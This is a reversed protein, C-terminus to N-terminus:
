CVWFERVVAEQLRGHDHSELSVSLWREADERRLFVTSFIQKLDHDGDYFSFSASYIRGTLTQKNPERNAVM